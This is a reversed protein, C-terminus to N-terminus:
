WQSSHMLSVFMYMSSLGRLDVDLDMPRLAARVLLVPPPPPPPVASFVYPPLVAADSMLGDGGLSMFTTARFDPAASVDAVDALTVDSYTGRSEAGKGTVPLPRTAGSADGSGLAADLDREAEPPAARVTVGWVSGSVADDYRPATRCRASAMSWRFHLGRLLGGGGGTSRSM